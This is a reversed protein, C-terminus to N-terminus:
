RYIYDMIQHWVEPRLLGKDAMLPDFDHVSDILHSAYLWRQPSNMNKPDDPWGFQLVRFMCIGLRELSHEIAPTSAGLFEGVLGKNQEKAMKQFMAIIREGGGTIRKQEDGKGTYVFFAAMIRDQPRPARVGDAFLYAALLNVHHTFYSQDHDCDLCDAVTFLDDFRENDFSWGEVFQQRVTHGGSLFIKEELEIFRSSKYIDPEGNANFIDAYEESLHHENKLIDTFIERVDERCQPLSELQHQDSYFWRDLANRAYASSVVFLASDKVLANRNHDSSQFINSQYDALTRIGRVSRLIRYYFSRAAAFKSDYDRHLYDRRLASIDDWLGLSQWNYPNQTFYYVRYFGFGHDFRIEDYFEFEANLRKRWYDMAAPDDFNYITGGWFQPPGFMDAPVGNVFNRRGTECDLMFVKPMASTELYEAYVAAESPMYPLDGIIRIDHEHAAKCLADWQQRYVWQAFLHFDIEEKNDTLFRKFGKSDKDLFDKPWLRWDWANHQNKDMLFRERLLMHVIHFRYFPLKEKKFTKLEKTATIDTKFEEFVMRMTKMKLSRVTHYDILSAARVANLSNRVASSRWFKVAKANYPLGELLRPIDVDVPDKLDNLLSYPSDGYSSMNRPLLYLLNWGVECSLEILLQWSHFDGVGTDEADGSRLAALLGGTGDRYKDSPKEARGSVHRVHIIREYVERARPTTEESRAAKLLDTLTCDEPMHRRHWSEPDAGSPNNIRSTDGVWDSMLTMREM